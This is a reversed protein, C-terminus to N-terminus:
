SFVITIYLLGSVFVFVISWAVINVITKIKMESYGFKRLTVNVVHAILEMLVYFVSEAM